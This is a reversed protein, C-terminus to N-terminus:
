KEIGEVAWDALKRFHSHWKDHDKADARELIEEAVAQFADVLGALIDASDVEHTLNADAPVDSESHDAPRTSVVEVEFSALENWVGERIRIALTAPLKETM